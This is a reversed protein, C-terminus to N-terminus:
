CQLYCTCDSTVLCFNFPALWSVKCFNYLIPFDEQLTAAIVSTYGTTKLSYLGSLLRETPVVMGIVPMEKVLQRLLHCWHDPLRGDASSATLIPVVEPSYIKAESLLDALTGSDNYLYKKLLKRFSAMTFFTRM